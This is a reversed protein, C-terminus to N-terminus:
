MGHKIEYEVVEWLPRQHFKVSVAGLRPHTFALSVDPNIEKSMAKRDFALGLGECKNLFGEIAETGTVTDSPQGVVMELHELGAPYHRGAKPSPVELCTVSYGGHVIPTHLKITSIPRGGIITETMLRGHVPVLSAVVAEYHQVTECRFCIHDMEYTRIGPIKAEVMMKVVADIFGKYDGLVETLGREHSRTGHGSKTAVAPTTDGNYSWDIDSYFPGPLIRARAEAPLSSVACSRFLREWREFHSVALVHAEFRDPKFECHYLPRYLVKFEKAEHDWVHGMVQYYRGKCEVVRVEETAEEARSRPQKLFCTVLSGLAVGAAVGMGVWVFKEHSEGANKM